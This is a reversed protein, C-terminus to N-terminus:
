VNGGQIGLAYQRRQEPRYIYKLFQKRVDLSALEELNNELQIADMDGDREKILMEIVPSLAPKARNNEMSQFYGKSFLFREMDIYQKTDVVPLNLLNPKSAFNFHSNFDINIKGGVMGKKTKIVIVGNGARAGWISSAAADKLITIDVIDNPNIDAINGEYPFDDLVILPGSATTRLTSLGRILVDSNTIGGSNLDYSENFYLGTTANKLRGMIDFTPNRQLQERDIREYAGTAMHGSISEYGSSMVVTDLSRNDEQLYINLTGGQVTDLLIRVSKYQAHSTQLIDHNEFSRIRINGVSNTRFQKKAQLLSITVNEIPKMTVRDYVHADLDKPNQAYAMMLGMLFCFYYILIVKKM